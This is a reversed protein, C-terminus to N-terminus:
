SDGTKGLYKEFVDEVDGGDRRLEKELDKKLNKLESENLSELADRGWKEVSKQLRPDSLVQGLDKLARGAADGVAKGTDKLLESPDSELDVGTSGEITSLFKERRVPDSFISYVLAIVGVLVVLILLKRM